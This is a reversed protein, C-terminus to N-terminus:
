GHREDGRILSLPVELVPQEWIVLSKSPPAVRRLVVVMSQCADADGELDMIRVTEQLLDWLQAQAQRPRTEAQRVLVRYRYGFGRQYNHFAPRWWICRAEGTRLALRYCAVQEPDRRFAYMRYSSFPWAERGLIAFGLFILAVLILVGDILTM